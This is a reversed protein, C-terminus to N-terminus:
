EFVVRDILLVRNPHWVSDVRLKVRRAYTQGTNIELVGLPTMDQAAMDRWYPSSPQGVDIQLHIRQPFTITEDQRPDTEVIIRNLPVPQDNSLTFEIEVPAGTWKSKFADRLGAVGNAGLTVQGTIRYGLGNTKKTIPTNSPHNNKSADLIGSFADYVRDMRVFQARTTDPSTQAIGVPIDGVYFVAGSVGSMIEASAWRGTTAIVFNLDDVDIISAEARDIFQGDFQIRSLGGSNVSLLLQSLNRRLDDWSRTCRAAAAGEVYSIALDQEPLRYFVEAIGATQPLATVLTLRDQDAVHNPMIAYCNGRYKVLFAHGQENGVLALEAASISQTALGFLLLIALWCIKM